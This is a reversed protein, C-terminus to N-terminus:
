WLPGVGDWKLVLALAILIFGVLLTRRTGKRSQTWIQVLWNM